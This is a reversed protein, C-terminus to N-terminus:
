DFADPVPERGGDILAVTRAKPSARLPTLRATEKAFRRALAGLLAEVIAPADKALEQYAARTLTLVSTDRIAIVNATRPVNAFFGIEGVLEGARLEAIPELDGNRCVALAGHLVMFLSDSAGGQAVLTQGRVLDRRVMANLAKRRQDSSLTRFLAFDESVNGWAFTAGAGSMPSM